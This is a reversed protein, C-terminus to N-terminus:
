DDATGDKGGSIFNNLAQLGEKFPMVMECHSWDGNYGRMPTEVKFSMADSYGNIALERGREETWIECIAGRLNELILNVGTGKNTAQVIRAFLFRTDSPTLRLLVNVRPTYTKRVVELPM